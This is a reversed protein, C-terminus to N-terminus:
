EKKLKPKKNKEKIKKIAFTLLKETLEGKKMGLEAAIIAITQHIEESIKINKLM